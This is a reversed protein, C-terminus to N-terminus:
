RTVPGALTLMRRMATRQAPDLGPRATVIAALRADEAAIVDPGGPDTLDAPDCGILRAFYGILPSTPVAKGSLWTEVPTCLGSEADFGATTKGREALLSLMKGPAFTGALSRTM